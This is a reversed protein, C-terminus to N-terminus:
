FASTIKIGMVLIDDIQEKEAKWNNIFDELYTKQENMPKQTVDVLIEKLRKTTIKKDLIGGFQDAYGDSFLYFVDGQELQIVHKEFVQDDKTYGGISEKTAKIETIAKSNKKIIWLPRNAGSYTLTNKQKNLFCLAIDMGDKTSQDNETQRLSTKIGHNLFHLMEDPNHSKLVAENLKESGIMNMFAGPVGHGTCDAAAILYGTATEYFWYFDGSVIDKPKFLIFSEPFAIQITEIPPLIANQIRQAYNISKTIESHKEEIEKKQLALLLNDKKKIIYGRYAVFGLILLLIVIVAFSRIIVKQRRLRENTIINKEAEALQEKDRAKEFEYQQIRETISNKRQYNSLTDTLKLYYNYYVSSSDAKKMNWYTEALFKYDEKIDNKTGLLQSIAISKKVYTIAERYNKLERNISAINFLAQSQDQQSEIEIALKLENNFCDLAKQYELKHQYTTGLNNLSIIVGETYGYRKRIELARMNYLLATDLKNLHTYVQGINSLISALDEGNLDKTSTNYSKFYYELAKNYEDMANFINGINNYSKSISVSDSLKEATKLALLHYDLARPLDLLRYYTNGINNLAMNKGKTFDHDNSLHLAEFYHDLASPYKGQEEDALGLRVIAKVQGLLYNLKNSLVLTKNAYDRAEDYKSTYILQWSIENLIKVKNTDDHLNIAVNKLSDIEANQGFLIFPLLLFCFFIFHKSQLM